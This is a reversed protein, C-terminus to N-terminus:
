KAYVSYVSTHTLITTLKKGLQSQELLTNNKIMSQHCITTIDSALPGDRTFGRISLESIVILVMFDSNSVQGM